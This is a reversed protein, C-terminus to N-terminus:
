AKRRTKRQSIIISTGLPEEGSESLPAPAPAPPPATPAPMAGPPLGPIGGEAPLEEDGAEDLGEDHDSIVYVSGDPNVSEVTLTVEDGEEALGIKQALDAPINATM